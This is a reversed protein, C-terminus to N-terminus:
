RVRTRVSLSHLFRFGALHLLWVMSGCALTPAYEVAGSVESLAYLPPIAGLVWQSARRWALRERFALQIERKDFKM